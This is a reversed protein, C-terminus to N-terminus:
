SGLLVQNLGHKGLFVRDYLNFLWFAITFLCTFVFTFPHSRPTMQQLELYKKCSWDSAFFLDLILLFAWSASRISHGSPSGFDSACGYDALNSGWVWVPRPESQVMKLNINM